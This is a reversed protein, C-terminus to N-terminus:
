GCYFLYYNAYSQNYDASYNNTAVYYNYDYGYYKYLAYYQAYYAYYQAYYCNTSRNQYLYQYAAYIFGTNAKSYASNLYSYVYYDYYSYGANFAVYENALARYYQSSQFNSAATNSYYGAQTMAPTLTAFLLLCLAISKLTKM